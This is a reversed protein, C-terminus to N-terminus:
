ELTALAVNCTAIAHGQHHGHQHKGALGAAPPTTSIDVLEPRSPRHVVYDQHLSQQWVVPSAAAQHLTHLDVVRPLM